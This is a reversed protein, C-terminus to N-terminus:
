IARPFHGVRKQEQAHAWHYINEPFHYSLNIYENVPILARTIAEIKKCQRHNKVQSTKTEGTWGSTLACSKVFGSGGKTEAPSLMVHVQSTVLLFGVKYKTSKQILFASTPNGVQIAAFKSTNGSALYSTEISLYLSPPSYLSRELSSIFPTNKGQRSRRILVGSVGVQM